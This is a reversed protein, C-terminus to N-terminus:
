MGAAGFNASQETDERVQVPLEVLRRVSVDVGYAKGATPYFDSVHLLELGEVDVGLRAAAELATRQQDDPTRRTAGAATIVHHLHVVRGDRPDYIATVDVWAVSPTDGDSQIAPHVRDANM